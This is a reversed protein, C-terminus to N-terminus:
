RRKEIEKRSGGGPTWHKTPLTKPNQPAATGGIFFIM